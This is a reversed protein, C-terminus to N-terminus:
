PVVPEGRLARVVGAISHSTWGKGQMYDWIRLEAEDLSIIESSKIVVEVPSESVEPLQAAIASWARSVSAWTEAPYPKNDRAAFHANEAADIANSLAQDPRVSKTIM